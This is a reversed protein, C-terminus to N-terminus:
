QDLESSEVNPASYNIVKRRSDYKSQLIVLLKVSPQPEIEVACPFGDRKANIEKKVLNLLDPYLLHIPLPSSHPDIKVWEYGLPHIPIFLPHIIDENQNNM